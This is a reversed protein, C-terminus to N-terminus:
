SGLLPLKPWRGPDYPPKGDCATKARTEVPVFRAGSLRFTSYIGCDGVGRAKDFVTLRGTKPTFLPVGLIEKERIPTPIGSGPDHYIHFSLATADRSPDVLYFRTTWQYAGLYCTVAVLRKGGPTPWLGVGATPPHSGIQWNHECSNPWHLIARWAARDRATKTGPFPGAQASGAAVAALVATALLMRLVRM